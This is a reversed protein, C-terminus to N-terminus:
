KLAFRPLSRRTQEPKQIDTNPVTNGTGKGGRRRANARWRERHLPKIVYVRRIPEGKSAGTLVASQSSLIFGKAKRSALPIFEFVLDYNRRKDM